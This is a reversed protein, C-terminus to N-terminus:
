TRAKMKKLKGIRANFDGLLLVNKTHTSDLASQITQYFNDIDENSYTETPAYTQVFSWTSNETIRIELIAIRDSINKISM